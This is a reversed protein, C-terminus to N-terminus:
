SWLSTLVTLVSPNTAEAPVNIIPQHPSIDQTRPQPTLSASLKSLISDTHEPSVRHSSTPTVSPSLWAFVLDLYPNEPWHLISFPLLWHLSNPLWTDWNAWTKGPESM